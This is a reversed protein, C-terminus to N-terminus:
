KGLQSQHKHNSDAYVKLRAIRQDRLKNQPLMNLVAIRIVEGPNNEIMEKFSIEKFGGPFGSHRYYMKKNEKNRTLKVEKANIVVVYDGGDIHPTYTAKNKGILKEAIDTAVKGLIQDKVDVLHWDRKVDEARQMYSTQKNM